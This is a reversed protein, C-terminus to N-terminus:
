SCNGQSNLRSADESMFIFFTSFRFCRHLFYVSPQSMPPSPSVAAPRTRSAEGRGGPQVRVSAEGTILVAAACDVVDIFCHFPGVM